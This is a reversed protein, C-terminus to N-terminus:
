TRSDRNRGLNRLDPYESFPRGDSNEQLSDYYVVTLNKVHLCAFHEPPGDFHLVVFVDEIDTQDRLVTIVATLFGKGNLYKAEVSDIVYVKEKGKLSCKIANDTLYGEKITDVDKDFKLHKSHPKKRPTSFRERIRNWSSRMFTNNTSLSSHHEKTSSETRSRTKKTSDGEWISNMTDNHKIIKVLASLRGYTKPKVIGKRSAASVTGLKVQSRGTKIKVKDGIEARSGNTIQKTSVDSPLTRQSDKSSSETRSRIKKESDRERIDSATDNCEFTELVKAWKGYQNLKVTGKKSIASVVGTIRKSRGAM